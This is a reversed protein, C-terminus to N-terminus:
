FLTLTERPRALSHNAQPESAARQQQGGEAPEGSDEGPLLAPQLLVRACATLGPSGCSGLLRLHAPVHREARERRPLLRGPQASRCVM